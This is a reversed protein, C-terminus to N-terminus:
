QLVLHWYMIQSNMISSCRVLYYWSTNQRLRCNAKSAPGWWWEYKMESFSIILCVPIGAIKVSKQSSAACRADQQMLEMVPWGRLIGTHTLSQWQQKKEITAISCVFSDDHDIMGKGSGPLDKWAALQLPFCHMIRVMNNLNSQKQSTFNGQWWSTYKSISKDLFPIHIKLSSLPAM